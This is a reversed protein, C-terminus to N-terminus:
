GAPDACAERLAKMIKEGYASLDPRERMQANINRWVEEMVGIVVSQTPSLKIVTALLVRFMLSQMELEAIREEISRSDDDGRQWM